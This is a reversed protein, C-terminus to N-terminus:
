VCPDVGPREVRNRDENGSEDRARVVFYVAAHSPLGPTRFSTAGPATTWSPHAFDEAGPTASMFVDYVLKSSPTDDDTAAQWSLNFPTTEGPRQPGPTCAFARELGAFVPTATDPVPPPEVRFSFRGHALLRTAFLPCSRPKLCVPGQTETFTGRFTGECWVRDPTLKVRVRAHPRRDARLPITITSTCGPRNPGIVTLSSSRKGFWAATQPTRFHVVFTTTPSGSAPTVAIHASAPGAHREATALAPLALVAAAVALVVRKGKV